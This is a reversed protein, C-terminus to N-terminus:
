LASRDLYEALGDPIKANWDRIANRLQNSLDAIWKGRDPAPVFTMVAPVDFHEAHFIAHRYRKLEAVREATLLPDVRSDFFKWKRWGEVVVYLLAFWVALHGVARQYDTNEVRLWQHEAQALLEDNTLGSNAVKVKESHFAEFAADARMM